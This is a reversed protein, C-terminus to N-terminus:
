ISKLMQLATAAMISEPFERLTREYIEIARVGEGIQTYCFAENVLAMERYTMKSSSFLTIFRYKDIWLHKSFFAYSKQFRPIAEQFKKQQVLKMGARHDSPVLTRLTFSLVFYTLGGLLLFERDVFRSWVLLIIGFLALQPLISIWAVQRNVPVNQKM